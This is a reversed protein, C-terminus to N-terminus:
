RLPRGVAAELAAFSKQYEYIANVRGIQAQVFQGRAVTLDVFNAAGVRYREEAGNLADRAAEATAEQLHMAQGAAIYTGYTQTIDATLQLAREHVDLSANDHNIRATEVQQERAFGNFLPVGVFMSVSYPRKSYSFPFTSHNLAQGGYGTSLNLSPTYQMRAVKLSLNMARETARAAVLGPNVQNALQLLSDLSLTLEAPEFTTTLKIGPDLLVGILQGLRAKDLRATNHATISTVRAQGLAVEANKADLITAAGTAFRARALELQAAASQVLTDQLASQAESQLATLYAQTVQGRLTADSGAITAVTAARNAGAARPAFFAGAGINYGLSVTYTTSYTDPAKIEVGQIVTSGGQQYNAGFLAQSTPLLSGRTLRVQADAARLTNKTKLFAPNNDRALSMADSLSLSDRMLPVPQQAEVAVSIAL